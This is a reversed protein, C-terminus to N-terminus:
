AFSFWGPGKIRKYDPNDSRWRNGPISVNSLRNAAWISSSYLSALGSLGDLLSVPNTAIAEALSAEGASILQQVQVDREAYQQHSQEEMGTMFKRFDDRSEGLQTDLSAKKTWFDGEAAAAGSVAASELQAAAGSVQGRQTFSDALMGSLQISTQQSQNQLETQRSFLDQSFQRQNVNKMSQKVYEPMNLADIEMNRSQLAAAGGKALASAQQTSFDKYDDRSKEMEGVAKDAWEEMGRAGKGALQQTKQMYGGSGFLRDHYEDMNEDLRNQTDQQSQLTLAEKEGVQAQQNAFNLDSRDRYDRLNQVNQHKQKLSANNAQQSRLWESVVSRGLAKNLGGQGTYVADITSMPDGGIGVDKLWDWDYDNWKYRETTNQNGYM